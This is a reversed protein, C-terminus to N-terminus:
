ICKSRNRIQFATFRLLSLFPAFKKVLLILLTWYNALFYDYVIEGTDSEFSLCCLGMPDRCVSVRM